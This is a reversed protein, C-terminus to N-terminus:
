FNDWSDGGADIRHTELYRTELLDKNSIHSSDFNRDFNKLIKNEQDKNGRRLGLSFSEEVMKRYNLNETQWSDNRENSCRIAPKANPNIFAEMRVTGFADPSSRNTSTSTKPDVNTLSFVRENHQNNALQLSNTWVPQSPELPPYRARYSYTNKEDPSVLSTSIDHTGNASPKFSRYASKNLTLPGTNSRKRHHSKFSNVTNTVSFQSASRDSFRPVIPADAAISDDSLNERSAFESAQHALTSSVGSRSAVASKSKAVRISDRIRAKRRQMQPSTELRTPQTSTAHVPTLSINGPASQSDALFSLATLWIYHREKTTATFKLARTPTLILISRNFLTIGKTANNGDKVDLVSQITLKRGSKGMLAPGSIPQRSSWMVAREYPALWVWRKHRIGNSCDSVLSPENVGMSKRRVYKYMWEGVMTQAIAGVVSIPKNSNAVGSDISDFSRSTNRSLSEQNHSAYRVTNGLRSAHMENHPIPPMLPSQFDSTSRSIPQPVGLPNSEGIYDTARPIAAASQVRRISGIRLHNRSQRTGDLCDVNDPDLISSAVCLRRSSQRAPIPFPPEALLGTLSPSRSRVSQISVDSQSLNSHYRNDYIKIESSPVSPNGTYNACIKEDSHKAISDVNPKKVAFSETIKATEHIQNNKQAMDKESIQDGRCNVISYSLKTHKDSNDINDLKECPHTANQNECSSNSPELHHPKLESKSLINGTTRHHSRIPPKPQNLIFQSSYRRIPSSLVSVPKAHNPHFNVRKDIRIEETQVSISRAAIALPICVQLGADRFQQPLLREHPTGPTSLPPHLQISPIVINPPSCKKQPFSEPFDTQSSSTNMEVHSNEILDKQTYSVKMETNSPELNDTQTFSVKTQIHPSQLPDTQTSSAKMELRSSELPDTQTSSVKMEIHSSELPDTQMSNAKMAKHLSELPDTQTSSVKTKKHNSTQTSPDRFESSGNKTFSRSSISDPQTSELVSTTPIKTSTNAPKKEEGADECLSAELRRVLIRARACSNSRRVSDFIMAGKKHIQSIAQRNVQAREVSVRSMASENDICNNVLDLIADDNEDDDDDILGLEDALTLASAKHKVLSNTGDLISHSVSNTISMTRLSETESVYEHRPQNDDQNGNDSTQNDKKIAEYVAIEELAKMLRNESAHLKYEMKRREEEWSDKDRAWLNHTREDNEKQNRLKKQAIELRRKVETASEEVDKKERQLEALASSSGDELLDLKRKLLYNEKSITTMGSEYAEHERRTEHLTAELSEILKTKDEQDRRLSLIESVLNAHLSPTFSLRDVMPLYENKSPESCRNQRAHELRPSPPPPSSLNRPIRGRISHPTDSPTPLSAHAAAAYEDETEWATM